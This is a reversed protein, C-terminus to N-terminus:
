KLKDRREKRGTSNLKKKPRSIHIGFDQPNRVQLGSKDISQFKNSIHIGTM